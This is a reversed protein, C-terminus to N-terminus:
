QIVEIFDIDFSSYLNTDARYGFQDNGCKVYMPVDKHTITNTAVSTRLAPFLNITVNTGVATADDTVMYLKNHGSFKIFDGAKLVQAGSTTVTATVSFAGASGTVVTITGSYNGSSDQFPAPLDITFPQLSGRKKMLFGIIQRRQTDTLNTFNATFSFYQTSVQTRTELGNISKVVVTPTNSNMDMTTFPVSPFDAM